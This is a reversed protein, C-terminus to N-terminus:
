VYLHRQFYKVCENNHCSRWRNSVIVLQFRRLAESATLLEGNLCGDSTNQRRCGAPGVVPLRERGIVMQRDVDRRRGAFQGDSVGASVVRAAVHELRFVCHSRSCGLECDGNFTTLETMIIKLNSRYQPHPTM